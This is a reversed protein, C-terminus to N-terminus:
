SFFLFNIPLIDPARLITSLRSNSPSHAPALAVRFPQFIPSLTLRKYYFLTALTSGGGGVTFTGRGKNWERWPCSMQSVSSLGHRQERATGLLLSFLYDRWVKWLPSRVGSKSHWGPSVCHFFYNGSLFDNLQEFTINMPIIGAAIVPLIGVETRQSSM